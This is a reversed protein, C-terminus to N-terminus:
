ITPYCIDLLTSGLYTLGTIGKQIEVKEQDTQYLIKLDRFINSNEYIQYQTKDHFYKNFTIYILGLNELVSLSFIYRDVEKIGVDQNTLLAFEILMKYNEKNELVFHCIPKSKNEKFSMFFRADFPSMQKLITSFSPHVNEFTEKNVTSSILNAFM